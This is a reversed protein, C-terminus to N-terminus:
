AAAQQKAENHIFEAAVSAMKAAKFIAREDNRLAKLWSKIYCAHDQRPQASVGTDACLFAAGLEAVLEELAYEKTGFRTTKLRDLRSQHGTWHTLEHFLVSYFGEAATSHDTAVFQGREPMVIKDTSPTYYAQPGGFSIKAGTKRVLNDAAVIPDFLPTEVIPEVPVMEVGDVQDVNFVYSIKAMPIKQPVANGEKDLIVQGNRPEKVLLEKWFVIPTGKEGKRVKAGKAQWQKFSAWEQHPYSNRHASVWLMLVNVGRYNNKTAYNRPRAMSGLGDAIWPLQGGADAHELAEIIQDTVIKYPSNKNMINELTPPYLGM